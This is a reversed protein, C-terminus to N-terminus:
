RWHKLQLLYADYQARREAEGQRKYVDLHTYSVTMADTLREVKHRSAEGERTLADRRSRAPTKEEGELAM